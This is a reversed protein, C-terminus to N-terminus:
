RTTRRPTRPPDRRRLDETPRDDGVQAAPGAERRDVVAVREVGGHPERRGPAHDHPRSRAVEIRAGDQEERSGSMVVARSASTRLRSDPREAERAGGGLHLLQEARPCLCCRGPEREGHEARDTALATPARVVTRPPM